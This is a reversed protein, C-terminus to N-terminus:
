EDLSIGLIQELEERTMLQWNSDDFIDGDVRWSSGEEANFYYYDAFGSSDLDNIYQPHEKKEADDVRNGTYPNVPDEIIEDMAIWPVDANTMFTDDRKWGTAHFDKVMLLPNVWSIDLKEVDPYLNLGRGHDAALIIRTNDWIGEERLHDFWKGLLLLAATDSEYHRLIFNGDDDALVLRSGDANQRVQPESSGDEVQTRYISPTYSPVQLFAVDHTANNDMAIFSGTIEDSIETLQDMQELVAYSQLFNRIDYIDSTSHYNGEDYLTRQLFLPASKFISFCFVRRMQSRQSLAGIQESRQDRIRGTTLYSRIGPFDDYISLDSVWHWGAYPPNIVTAAYGSESFLRPMLLLAEDHKDAITVDRRAALREPTYDYGGFLATTGINTYRGFSITNPYWTFGDYQEYLEPFENFIYPVFGSIARDLMIVVVNNGTRSLSLLKEPLEEQEQDEKGLQSSLVARIHLINQGSMVLVATTMGLWLLTLLRGGAPKRVAFLVVASATIIIGLNILIEWMPYSPTSDFVFSTDMNGLHRGFLFYDGVFVGSLITMVLTMRRRDRSKGLGYLIGSWVFFVGAAIGAANKIYDMPHLIDSVNVFETPSDALVASPILVGTMLVALVCAILYLILMGQRESGGAGPHEEEKTRGTADRGPLVKMVVNKLFSFVQNMLWYLVLGSPSRYLLVLFLGALLYMQMRSRFGQGKTYALISALNMLTMLIPMINMTFAGVTILADPKGMDRLFLFAAGKLLDCGALYRYAAMFFPIQLLLSVSGRLIHWPKYGNEQYYASLIMFREDGHFTKQIHTKWRALKEEQRHQAEQMKDAQKYLPLILLNLVVSVGIVAIGPSATWDYLLSFVFEMLLEIPYIFINLFLEKM